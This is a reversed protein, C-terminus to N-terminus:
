LVTIELNKYGYIQEKENFISDNFKPSVQVSDFERDLDKSPEVLFFYWPNFVPM